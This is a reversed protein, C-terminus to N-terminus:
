GATLQASSFVVGFPVCYIVISQYESLDVEAPIDYNQSGVNGKLIGLDIMDEGVGGFITTPTIKSLIVHLEPGNTVRFDEFRLVLQGSVDYVTATGEAKHVADIAIFSGQAVLQPDSADEPMTEDMVTDPETMAAATQGAMDANEDAMAVLADQEDQPMERVAQRQEDTLGPFAEDVVDNRFYPSWLPFTVAVLVVVIVVALLIIRNRSM